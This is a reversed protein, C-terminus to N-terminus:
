IHKGLTMRVLFRSIVVGVQFIANVSSYITNVVLIIVLLAQQNSDTDLSAMIQIIIFCIIMVLSSALLRTRLHVKYGFVTTILVFM